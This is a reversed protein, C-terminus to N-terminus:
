AAKDDGQLPANLEWEVDPGFDLVMNIPEESPNVRNWHDATLTM